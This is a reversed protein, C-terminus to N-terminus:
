VLYKTSGYKIFYGGVIDFIIYLPKKGWIYNQM